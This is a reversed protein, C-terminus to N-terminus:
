RFYPEMSAVSDVLASALASSSSSANNAPNVTAASFFQFPINTKTAVETVLLANLEQILGQQQAFTHLTNEGSTAAPNADAALLLKVIELDGRQMALLLPTLGDQNPLELQPKNNLLLAVLSSDGRLCALHFATNGKNDQIDMPPNARLLCTVLDYKLKGKEVAYHLPTRGAQDQNDMKAGNKIFYDVAKINGMEISAYIPTQGVQNQSSNEKNEILKSNVDAGNEILLRMSATFGSVAALWLPTNGEQNALNPNVGKSLLFKSYYLNRIVERNALLPLGEVEAGQLILFQIWDINDSNAVALPTEGQQNKAHIDASLHALRKATAFSLKSAFHLATNGHEDIVLTDANKDNLLWRCMMEYGKQAAFYLLRSADLYQEQTFVERILHWISLENTSNAVLIELLSHEEEDYVNLNVGDTFLKELIDKRQHKAAQIIAASVNLNMGLDVLREINKLHWGYPSGTSNRCIIEFLTEGQVNKENPNCGEEILWIIEEVHESYQWREPKFLLQLATEGALNRATISAGKSKLWRLRDLYAGHVLTNGKDDTININMGHNFLKEIADWKHKEKAKFVTIPDNVNVLARGDKQLSLFWELDALNDNMIMLDLANNGALNRANFDISINDKVLQKVVDMKREAIAKLLITNGADLGAEHSVKQLTSTESKSDISISKIKLVSTRSPEKVLVAFKQLKEQLIKVNKELGYENVQYDFRWSSNGAYNTAGVAILADVIEWASEKMAIFLPTMCSGNELDLKPNHKLLLKVLDLDASLCALHLPTNNSEDQANIDANAELLCTVMDIKLKGKRIAHHLPTSSEEDQVNVCAGKEIFYQVEEAMGSDILFYLPTRGEKRDGLTVHREVYRANLDAHHDAFFKIIDSDVVLAFFVPQIENHVSLRIPVGHQVLDDVLSGNKLIFQKTLLNEAKADAGNKLLLQIWDLNYESSTQLPTKGQKTKANLNAGKNIIQQGLSLPLRGAYHLATYGQKDMANININQQLLFDCHRSYGKQTAMILTQSIDFSPYRAIFKKIVALLADENKTYTFLLDLISNGDLNRFDVEIGEDMWQLIIECCGAKAAASIVMRDNKNAGKDIFWLIDSFAWADQSRFVLELFTENNENKANLDCGQEVLWKAFAIDQEKHHGSFRSFILHLLTSGQYNSLRVNAGREHLWKAEKYNGDRVVQCVMTNGNSDKVNIDMGYSLLLEIANLNPQYCMAAIAAQPDNINVVRKGDRKFDLLWKLDSYDGRQILINLASEENRNHINVEVNKVEVLWTVISMVHESLAALLVNNGNDNIINIDGGLELIRKCHDLKGAKAAKLLVYEGNQNCINPSIGQEFFYLLKKWDQVTLDSKDLLKFFDSYLKTRTQFKERLGSPEHQQYDKQSQQNASRIMCWQEFVNPDNWHSQQEDSNFSLLSAPNQNKYIVKLIPLQVDALINQRGSDRYAAYSLLKAPQPTQLGFGQKPTNGGRGVLVKSIKHKSVLQNACAFYMDKIAHEHHNKTAHHMEISDFVINGNADSWAWCQAVIDGTISDECVYFGGRPDAIGHRACESGADRLSQCCSTYKGLIAAKPDRPDLKSLKFQKYDRHISSGEIEVLPILTPDDQPILGLYENFAEEPMKKHKFIQAAALNENARAYTLQAAYKVLVELPTNPHLLMAKAIKDNAGALIKKQQEPSLEAFPPKKQDKRKAEYNDLIGKKLRETLEPMLKAENKGVYDEITDAIGLVEFIAHNHSSPLFKSIYSRWLNINWDTSGPLTFLCADHIFQTVNANKKNDEFRKLYKIADDYSNFAVALKFAHLMATQKKEIQTLHPQEAEVALQTLVLLALYANQNVQCHNLYASGVTEALSQMDIEPNLQNSVTQNQQLNNLLSSLKSKPKPSSYM